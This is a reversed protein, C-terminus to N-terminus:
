YSRRINHLRAAIGPPQLLYKGVVAHSVGYKSALSVRHPDVDRDIGLRLPRIQNLGALKRLLRIATVDFQWPEKHKGPLCVLVDTIAPQGVILECVQEYLASDLNYNISLGWQVDPRQSIISRYKNLSEINEVHLFVCRINSHAAFYSDIKQNIVRATDAYLHLDVPIFPNAQQWHRVAELCDTKWGPILEGDSFDAHLLDIDLAAIDTVNGTEAQEQLSFAVLQKDQPLGSIKRQPYLAAFLANVKAIDKTKQPTELGSQIDVVTAPANQSTDAVNDPNIGGALFVTRGPAAIQEILKTALDTDIAVGTGGHFNQDALVYSGVIDSPDASGQQASFVNIAETNRGHDHLTRLVKQKFPADVNAHFQVFDTPIAIAMGALASSDESRSVLATKTRPYYETMEDAILKLKHLESAEPLEYIAHLGIFDTKWRALYRAVHLDKVRCIKLLPADLLEALDAYSQVHLFHNKIKPRKGIQIYPVGAAAAFEGDRVSDDGIYLMETHTIDPLKERVRELVKEAAAAEPKDRLSWADAADSRLQDEGVVLGFYKALGVKQLYLQISGTSTSSAVFFLTEPQALALQRLFDQFGPLLYGTLEERELGAVARQLFAEKCYYLSAAADVDSETSVDVKLRGALAQIRARLESKDMSINPNEMFCAYINGFNDFRTYASVPWIFLEKATIKLGLAGVVDLWAKKHLKDITVITNDFDFGIARKDGFITKM